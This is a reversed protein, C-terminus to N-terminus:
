YHKREQQAIDSVSSQGAFAVFQQFLFDAAEKADDPATITLRVERDDEHLAFALFACCEKEKRVMEYVQEAAQPAYRLELVLGRREYSQLAIRTLETIWALRDQLNDRTLTCAIPLPEQAKEKTM